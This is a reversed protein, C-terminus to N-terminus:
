MKQSLVDTKDSHASLILLHNVRPQTMTSRLYTKERRLSSFTRKSTANTGPMALTVKVITAVESFYGKHHLSKLSEVVYTRIVCILVWYDTWVSKQWWIYSWANCTQLQKSWQFSTRSRWFPSVCAKEKLMRWETNVRYHKCYFHPKAFTKGLKERIFPLIGFLKQWDSSAVTVRRSCTPRAQLTLPQQGIQLSIQTPISWRIEAHVNPDKVARRTQMTYM